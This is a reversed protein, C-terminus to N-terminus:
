GINIGFGAGSISNGSMVSGAIKLSQPSAVVDLGLPRLDLEQIEVVDNALLRVRLIPTAGFVVRTERVGGENTVAVHITPDVSRNGSIRLATQAPPSPVELNVLLDGGEGRTVFLMRKGAIALPAECTWIQNRGILYNQLAPQIM